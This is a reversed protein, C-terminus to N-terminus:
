QNQMELKRLYMYWLLKVCDVYNQRLNFNPDNLRQMLNDIPWNAQLVNFNVTLNEAGAMECLDCRCPFNWQTNLDEQRRAKNKFRLRNGNNTITQIYSITLEHGRRISINTVGVFVNGVLGIRVNPVCSHNAFSITDYILLRDLTATAGAHKYNRVTAGVSFGNEVLIYYFHTTLHKLFRKIGNRRGVMAQIKPLTMLESYTERAHRRTGEHPTPTPQLRLICHLKSRRDNVERPTGDTFRAREDENGMLEEVDSKLDEIDEFTVIAELVMQISCKIHVNTIFEFGTGCELHHTQHADKCRISCYSSIGCDACTICSSMRTKHCTVCYLSSNTPRRLIVAAFPVANFVQTEPVLAAGTMIGRGKGPIMGLQLNNNTFDSYGRSQHTPINDALSAIDNQDINGTQGWVDDCFQRPGRQRKYTWLNCPEDM